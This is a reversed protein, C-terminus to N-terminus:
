HVSNLKIISCISIRILSITIFSLFELKRKTIPLPVFIEMSVNKWMIPIILAFSKRILKPSIFNSLWHTLLPAPMGKPANKGM